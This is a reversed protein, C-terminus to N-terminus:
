EAVFFFHCKNFLEKEVMLILELEKVLVLALMGLMFMVVMKVVLYLEKEVKALLELEKEVLVVDKHLTKVLLLIMVLQLEKDM